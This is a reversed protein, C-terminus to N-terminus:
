DEAYTARGQLAIWRGRGGWRLVLFHGAKRWVYMYLYISYEYIAGIAHFRVLELEGMGGGPFANLGRGKGRIQKTDCLALKDRRLVHAPVGGM